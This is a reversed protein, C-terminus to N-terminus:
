FLIIVEVKMKILYYKIQNIIMFVNIQFLKILIFILAISKSELNPFSENYEIISEGIQGPNYNTTKKQVPSLYISIDNM